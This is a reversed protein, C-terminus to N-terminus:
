VTFVQMIFVFFVISRSPFFNNSLTIKTGKSTKLARQNRIMIFCFFKHYYIVAAEESEAIRTQVNQSTEAKTVGAKKNLPEYSLLTYGAPFSKRMKRWFFILLMIHILYGPHTWPDPRESPCNQAVKRNLVYCAHIDGVENEKISNVFRM